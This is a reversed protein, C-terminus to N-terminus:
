VEKITNRLIAARVPHGLQHLGKTLYLQWTQLCYFSIQVIENEPFINSYFIQYMITSSAIVCSMEAFLYSDASHFISSVTVVYIQM